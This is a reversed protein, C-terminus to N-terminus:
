LLSEQTPAPPPAQVFMDPQRTVEDVRKCAIDFYEPDLEIGTGQRGLKQCAVLTTGSGLFPELITDASMDEILEQMLGVPKECPHRGNTETRYALVDSNHATPANGMRAARLAADFEQGLGLLNKLGAAQDQTPLCAAEEWRFCLGTKKGRLAMDVGGRSLGKAERAERIMTAPGLTKPAFGQSCHFIAEHAFWRGNESAGSLQSGPPKYWIMPRVRPFMMEALRHVANNLNGFIVAESTERFAISMWAMSFRAFEPESMADWADDRVGYPPDTVVADFRGLLQMVELCDGLILRQGGIREEKIIM